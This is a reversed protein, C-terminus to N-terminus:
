NRTNFFDEDSVGKDDIYFDGSPKGMFLYHYKVKWTTLQKITLEYFEAEADTANNGHRGMGRATHFIITNGSDYLENVKNIRDIIPKSKKYNSNKSTCITGDIDFVYTKM